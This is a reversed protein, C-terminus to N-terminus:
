RNYIQTIVNTFLYNRHKGLTAPIIKDNNATVDHADKGCSANTNEYFNGATNAEFIIDFGASTENDDELAEWKLLRSSRTPINNDESNRKESEVDDDQM